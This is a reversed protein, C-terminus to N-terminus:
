GGNMERNIDRMAELVDLQARFHEPSPASFDEGLSLTGRRAEYRITTSRPWGQLREPIRAEELRDHLAPDQQLKEAGGFAPRRSDSDDLFTTLATHPSRSM